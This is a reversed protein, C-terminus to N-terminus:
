EKLKQEFQKKTKELEKSTEEKEKQFMDIKIKHQQEM